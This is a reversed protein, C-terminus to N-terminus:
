KQKFRGKRVDMGLLFFVFDGTRREMEPSEVPKWM